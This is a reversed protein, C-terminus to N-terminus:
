TKKILHKKFLHFLENSHGDELGFGIQNRPDQCFHSGYEVAGQKTEQTTKNPAFRLIGNEVIRYQKTNQKKSDETNIPEPRAVIQRKVEL